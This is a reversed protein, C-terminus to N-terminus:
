RMSNFFNKVDYKSDYFREEDIKNIIDINATTGPEVSTSITIIHTGNTEKLEIGEIPENMIMSVFKFWPGDIEKIEYIGFPVNMVTLGNKNNIPVKITEGTDQNKLMVCFDYHGEKDLMMKDFAEGSDEITKNFHLNVTPIFKYFYLKLVNEEETELQKSLINREDNKDFVWGEIIYDKSEPVVTVNEFDSRYSPRKLENGQKDYWEVRYDVSDGVYNYLYKIQMYESGNEPRLTISPTNKDKKVVYETSDIGILEYKDPLFNYGKFTINTDSPFITQWQYFIGRGPIDWVMADKLSFVEQVTTDDDYFLEMYFDEPVEIGDISEFKVEVTQKRIFNLIIENNEITTVIKNNKDWSYSFVESKENPTDKDFTYYAWDTNNKYLTDASIVEELYTRNSSNRVTAVLVDGFYYNRVITYNARTGTLETAIVFIGYNCTTTTDHKLINKYPFIWKNNAEDWFFYFHKEFMLDGNENDVGYALSYIKHKTTTNNRYLDMNRNIDLIFECMFPYGPINSEEIEGLRWYTGYGKIADYYKLHSDKKYIDNDKTCVFTVAIDSIDDEGPLPPRWKTKYNNDANYTSIQETYIDENDDIEMEEAPELSYETDSNDRTLRTINGNNYSDLEQDNGGNEEYTEYSSPENAKFMGSCVNVLMFAVMLM